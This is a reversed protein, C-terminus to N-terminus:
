FRFLQWMSPSVRKVGNSTARDYRGVNPDTVVYAGSRIVALRNEIKEESSAAASSDTTAREDRANTSQNITLDKALVPAGDPVTTRQTPAPTQVAPTPAQAISQAASFLAFQAVCAAIVFPFKLITHM